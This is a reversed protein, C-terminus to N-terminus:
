GEASRDAATRNRYELPACAHHKRFQAHFSAYSRYGVREAIRSVPLDTDRLLNQAFRMRMLCIYEQFTMGIQRKFARGLYNKSYHAIEALDEATLAESLHTDIYSVVRSIPDLKAYGQQIHAAILDVSYRIWQLTNEVSDPALHYLRRCIETDFLESAQFGYDHLAIALFQSFEQVLRELTPRRLQNVAALEQLTDQVDEIIRDFRNAYLYKAWQQPAFNYAPAESDPQVEHIFSIPKRIINDINQRFMVLLSARIDSIDTKEGVYCCVTCCLTDAGFRVLQEACTRLRTYDSVGQFRFLALFGTPSLPIIQGCSKPELARLKYTLLNAVQSMGEPTDNPALAEKVHVYMPLATRQSQPIGLRDCLRHIYAKGPTATGWALQHWLDQVRSDPSDPSGPVPAPFAQPLHEQLIRAASADLPLELFEMLPMGSHVIESFVGRPCLPLVPVGREELQQLCLHWDQVSRIDPLLLDWSRDAPYAPATHLTVGPFGAAIQHVQAALSDDLTILCVTAM